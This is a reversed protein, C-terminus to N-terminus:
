CMSCGNGSKKSHDVSLVRFHSLYDNQVNGNLISREAISWSMDLVSNLQAGLRHVLVAEMRPSPTRSVFISMIERVKLADPSAM